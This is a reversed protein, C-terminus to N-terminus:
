APLLRNQFPVPYPNGIRLREAPPQIPNCDAAPFFCGAPGSDAEPQQDIFVAQLLRSVLGCFDHFSLYSGSYKKRQQENDRKNVPSQPRNKPHAGPQDKNQLICKGAPTPMKSCSIFVFVSRIFSMSGIDTYTSRCPSITALHRNLSSVM